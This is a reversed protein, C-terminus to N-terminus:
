GDKLFLLFLYMKLWADTIILTFHTVFLIYMKFSKM